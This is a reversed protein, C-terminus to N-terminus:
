IEKWMGEFQATKEQYSLPSSDSSEESKEFLYLSYDLVEDVKQTLCIDLTGTKHKLNIITKSPNSFHEIFSHTFLIPKYRNAKSGPFVFSDLVKMEDSNEHQGPPMANSKILLQVPEAMSSLHEIGFEIEGEKNEHIWRLYGTHISDDVHKIAVVEGITPLIKRDPELNLKIRFGSKSEDTLFAQYISKISVTSELEQQTDDDLKIIKPVIDIQSLFRSICSVGLAIVVPEILENRKNNRGNNGSWLKILRKIFFISLVDTEKSKDFYKILKRTEFGWISDSSLDSLLNNIDDSNNNKFHNSFPPSDSYPKIFFPAKKELAKDSNIIIQSYKASLDLETWLQSMESNTLHYPNALSFLLIKKYLDEISWYEGLHCKLLKSSFKRQHAFHYLQHIDRWVDVNCVAYLLYSYYAQHSLYYLSSYTAISLSNQNFLSSFFNADSLDDIIIKYGMVMESWFANVLDVYKGKEDGLPLGSGSYKKSLKHVLKIIPTHLSELFTLREQVSIDLANVEVLLSFYLRAQEGTKNKSVREIWQSLDAISNYLNHGDPKNRPPLQLWLIVDKM